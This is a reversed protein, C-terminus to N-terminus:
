EGGEQGGETWSDRRIDLVFWIVGSTRLFVDSGEDFEYVQTGQIRLLRPLLSSSTANRPGNSLIWSAPIIGQIGGLM